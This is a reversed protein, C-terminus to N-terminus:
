EGKMDFIIGIVGPGTHTGIICGLDFMEIEVDGLKERLLDIAIKCSEDAYGNALWIKPKNEFDYVQATMDVIKNLSKQMGREKGINEVLGDNITLIPKIGM